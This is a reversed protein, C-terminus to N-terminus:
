GASGVHRFQERLQNQIENVITTIRKSDGRLKGRIYIRLDGTPLSTTYKAEGSIKRERSTGIESGQILLVVELKKAGEDRVARIIYQKRGSTKDIIPDGKLSDEDREEIEFGKDELLMLIDAIRMPDLLVGPFYLHQRPAFHKRGLGEELKFKFENILVTRYLPMIVDTENHSVYILELESLLSDVKIEVHGSLESRHHLEVPESIELCIWESNFAYWDLGDISGQSLLPVNSWEIKGAEPDYILPASANQSTLKVLRHPTAIPWTLTMRSIQPPREKYQVGLHPPLDLLIKFRMILTHKIAAQELLEKILKEKEDESAETQEDFYGEDMIEVEIRIPVKVLKSPQYPQILQLDCYNLKQFDPRLLAVSNPDLNDAHNM